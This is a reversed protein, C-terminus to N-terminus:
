KGSASFEFNLWTSYAIELMAVGSPLEADVTSISLKDHHYEVFVYATSWSSPQIYAIVM